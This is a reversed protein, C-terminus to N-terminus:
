ARTVLKPFFQGAVLAQLDQSYCVFLSVSCLGGWLLTRLLPMSHLASPPKLIKSCITRSVKDLLHGQSIYVESSREPSMRSAESM